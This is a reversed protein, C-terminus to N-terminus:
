SLNNQQGPQFQPNLQGMFQQPPLVQQQVMHPPYGAPLAQGTYMIPPPPQSFPPPPPFQPPPMPFSPPQIPPMGTPEEKVATQTYKELNELQKTLMNIHATEGVRARLYFASHM